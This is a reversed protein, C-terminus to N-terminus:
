LILKKWEGPDPAEITGIGPLVIKAAHLLQHSVGYKEKYSRNIVPDGYKPDGIVPHKLFSLNARIQHTRGTYLRVSLYTYGDYVRIPSFGTKIYKGDIMERTSVTVRNNSEDKKLYGEFTLKEEMQGAAICHYTKETTRNKLAESLYQAGKLTKACLVIGSTNRDLRNMASPRFMHLSEESLIHNELCYSLLHENLSVDGKQGKQTLMGAPKNVALIDENEFIVNLLVGNSPTPDKLFVDSGKMKQFTEESFFVKIEDNTTLIEAGEAKKGNLVINKKRLM